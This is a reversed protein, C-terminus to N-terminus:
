RTSWRHCPWGTATSPLNLWRDYDGARRAADHWLLYSWDDEIFWLNRALVVLVLAGAGFVAM